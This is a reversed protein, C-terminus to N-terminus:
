PLFYSIFRCVFLILNSSAHSIDTVFIIEKLKFGPQNQQDFNQETTM